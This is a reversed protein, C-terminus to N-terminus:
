NEKFEGKFYIEEIRNKSTIIKFDDVIFYHKGVLTDDSVVALISFWKSKLNSRYYYTDIYSIRKPFICFKLKTVMMVNFGANWILMLEEYQEDIVVQLGFLYKCDHGDMFLGAFSASVAMVSGSNSENISKFIDESMGVIKPPYGNKITFDDMMKLLVERYGM